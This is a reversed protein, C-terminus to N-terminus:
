TEVVYIDEFESRVVYTTVRIDSMRVQLFNGSRAIVLCFGGEPRV